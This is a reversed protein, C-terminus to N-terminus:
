GKRILDIAKAIEWAAGKGVDVGIQEAVRELIGIANDLPHEFFPASWPWAMLVVEKMQDAIDSYEGQVRLSSRTRILDVFARLNYKAVLNCQVNLPLIGRADQLDADVEDVMFSYADMAYDAAAGFAKHQPTFPEFPNTVGAQGVDTVRQSQMAYSAQRTRTIQQATARTVNSILFTLDVFEWSSPITKAMYALEARKADESMAAVEGMRDATMNLRTGKTFILIDAAHWREDPRGAGTWDILEVTAENM